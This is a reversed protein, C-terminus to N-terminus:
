SAVSRPPTKPRLFKEAHEIMLAIRRRGFPFLVLLGLYVAASALAMLLVQPVPSWAPVLHACLVVCAAIGTALPIEQLLPRYFDSVPISSCRSALWLLLPTRILLGTLSFAMAVKTVGYPAALLIAGNIILSEFLSLIFFSKTNGTTNCILAGVVNYVDAFAAPLLWAFTPVAMDWNPGLLIRIVPFAAPILFAVMPLSFALLSGCVQQVGRRFQGPNSVVRSLAPFAVAVVPSIFQQIPSMSSSMARNYIGLQTAGGIGGILMSEMSKNFACVCLFGSYYGGVHLISRVGPLSFAFEPRWGSFWWYLVAAAAFTAYTQAILSWYEWGHCACIVGIGLGCGSSAIDIFALVRFKMQRTLLAQHQMGCAKLPFAAALCLVIPVLRADRFYWAIVPALAAFILACSSGFLMNVWFITSSKQHDLDESRVSAMTLGGETLIWLFGMFAGAMAVLGYNEPKLLRSLVAINLLGLIAKLGQATATVMGARISRGKLDDHLHETGFIKTQDPRTAM